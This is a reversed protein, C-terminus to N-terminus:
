LDENKVLMQTFGAYVSLFDDFNSIPFEDEYSDFIDLIGM